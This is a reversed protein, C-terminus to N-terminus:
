LSVSARFFKPGQRFHLHVPFLAEHEGKRGGKETPVRPETPDKLMWYGGESAAPLIFQASNLRVLAGNPDDARENIVSVWSAQSVNLLFGTM